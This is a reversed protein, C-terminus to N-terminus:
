GSVNRQQIVDQYDPTDRNVEQLKEIFDPGSYYYATGKVGDIEKFLRNFVVSWNPSLIEM